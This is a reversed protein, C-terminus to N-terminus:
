EPLVSLLVAVIVVNGIVSEVEVLSLAVSVSVAAAPLLFSLLSLTVLGFMEGPRPLRLGGRALGIALVSMAALVAVFGGTIVIAIQLPLRNSLTSDTAAALSVIAAAIFLALIVIAAALQIVAARASPEAM